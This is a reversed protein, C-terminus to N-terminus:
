PEIYVSGTQVEASVPFSSGSLPDVYTVSITIVNGIVGQEIDPERSKRNGGCDMFAGPELVASALYQTCIITSLDSAVDKLTFPGTLTVNGTNTIRYNFKITVGTRGFTPPITKAEITLAPRPQTPSTATEVFMPMPAPTLTAVPTATPAAPREFRLYAFSDENTVTFSSGSGQESLECNWSGVEMDKLVLGPPPLATIPKQENLYLCAEENELHVAFIAVGGANSPQSGFGGYALQVGPLMEDGADPSGNQNIDVFTHMVMSGQKVPSAPSCRLQSVTLVALLILTGSRIKMSMM